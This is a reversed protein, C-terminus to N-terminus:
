GGQGRVIEDWLEAWESYESVIAEVDGRIPEIEVGGLQEAQAQKNSPTRGVAAFVAQAGDPDLFFDQLLLAGAPNAASCVVSVATIEAVVPVNVPQWELPAGKDQFKMARHLYGNPTIGHQGAVVLEATTTHGHTITSNAAMQRFLGVAEDKSMGKEAMFHEVLVAFWYVDSDELAMAGAYKDSSFDEFGQPAEDILNTNWLPMLYSFRDATFHEFQGAEVVDEEWPSSSPALIGEQGLIVMELAEIELLDAGAFGAASEELIRQRVQESGARYLTLELGDDEYRDEFADGIAEYDSMETYLSILGGAEVAREILFKEREQGELGEVEDILASVKSNECGASSGEAAPAGTAPDDAAAVAPETVGEQQSGGACAATLLIGTVTLTSMVRHYRLM